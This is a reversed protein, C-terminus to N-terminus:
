DQILLTRTTPLLLAGDQEHAPVRIDYFSFSATGSNERQSDVMLWYQQKVADSRGKDYGTRYTAEAKKDAQQALAESALVGAGAGAATWGAKGEGLEHGIVAGGVGTLSHTLARRVPQDQTGGCSVLLCTGLISFLLKATTM